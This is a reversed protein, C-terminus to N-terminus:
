VLAVSYSFIFLLVCSGLASFALPRTQAKTQSCFLIVMRIGCGQVPAYYNSGANEFWCGSFVNKKLGITGGQLVPCFKEGCAYM